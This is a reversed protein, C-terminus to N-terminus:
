YRAGYKPILFFRFFFAEQAVCRAAILTDPQLSLKFLQCGGPSFEFMLRSTIAIGALAGPADIVTNIGINALEV